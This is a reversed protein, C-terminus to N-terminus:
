SWWIINKVIWILSWGWLIILGIVIKNTIFINYNLKIVIISVTWSWFWRKWQSWLARWTVVLIIKNTIIISIILYIWIICYIIIVCEWITWHIIIRSIIIQLFSMYLSFFNESIWLVINLLWIRTIACVDWIFIILWAIVHISVRVTMRYIM